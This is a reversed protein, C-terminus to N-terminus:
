LGHRDQSAVFMCRGCTCTGRPWLTYGDPASHAPARQWTTTAELDIEAVFSQGLKESMPRRSRNLLGILDRQKRGLRDVSWAAIMNITRATADKLLRNFGPRKDRGKTGSIGNDEYVGSGAAVAEL